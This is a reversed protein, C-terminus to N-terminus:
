ALRAKAFAALDGQRFLRIGKDRTRVSPIQGLDAFRKVSAASLDVGLRALERTADSATLLQDDSRDAM